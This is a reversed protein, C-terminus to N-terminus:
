IEQTITKKCDVCASSTPRALLRKEAIPKQCYKCIGYSGKALRDLASKVDRSARELDQEINMNAEYDAVERANDEESDGYNPFTARFEGEAARPDQKGARQLETELKAQEAVLLAKVEALFDASFVPATQNSKPPEM